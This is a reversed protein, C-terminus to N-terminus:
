KFDVKELKKLGTDIRMLSNKVDIFYLFRDKRFVNFTWLYAGWYNSINQAIWKLNNEEQNEYLISKAFIWGEAILKYCSQPLNLVNTFNSDNYSYCCNLEYGSLIIEKNLCAATIAHSAQPLLHTESWERNKLDFMECSRLASKYYGGFIYVKQNKFVSGAYDKLSGSKLKEFNKDKLNILFSKGKHGQFFYTYQDVKCAQCYASIKPTFSLDSLKFTELNICHLGTRSGKSFIVENCEKWDMKQESNEEFLKGIKDRIFNVKEAELKQQGIETSIIKEYSGKSISKGKLLNLIMEEHDVINRLAKRTQAELSKIIVISSRRINKKCVQFDKLFGKLRPLLYNRNSSNLEVRLIQAEHRGIRNRMHEEFHYTCFYYSEYSRCSCYCTADRDCLNGYCQKNMNIM